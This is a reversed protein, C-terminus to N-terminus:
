STKNPPSLPCWVSSPLCFYHSEIFGFFLNALQLLPPLSATSPLLSRPSALAYCVAFLASLSFCCVLLTHHNLQCQLKNSYIFLYFRMFSPIGLATSRPPRQSTTTDSSSWVPDHSNIKISTFVFFCMFRFRGFLCRCTRIAVNACDRIRIAFSSPSRISRCIEHSWEGTTAEDFAAHLNIQGVRRM